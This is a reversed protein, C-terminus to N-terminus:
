KSNSLIAEFQNPTRYDLSSHKRRTNYYGEIFEFLETRADDFGEFVGKQLMERKLTSFFSECCANDYPDARASMSQLLQNAKLLSRFARSSYQSGRDSHFICGSAPGRSQLAQHLANVVLEARMNQALSWGVIKRSCLDIVVALFIWSSTTPIYTIDGAWARDCRQPDPSAALHNGSPLDARGDSTRPIFSRPQIARLGAQKMLRRLRGQGCLIGQDALEHRIRRYGYRRRHRTFIAAIQESMQQDNLQTATPVAAHFYSSRPLNLARCIARVSAGTRQEIRTIM